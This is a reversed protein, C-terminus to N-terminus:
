YLYKRKNRNHEENTRAYIVEGTDLTTLYFYYPSDEPNITGMISKIGPNSIPGPTLGLNKRTNYDSEEQLDKYEITRDSKLYLLTADAGIVWDEDFRKWLIGAVIPIDDTTRVEKEVISAMIMIETLDRGHDKNLEDGLKTEFNNLMLQILNESYFNIPDIYYTDPFLYGELPYILPKMAEKNLFSHKDYDNFDKVATNFEGSSIVGIKVLENDIDEVTFGEPVTLVIETRTKDTIIDVIESVTQTKQLIFRGSVVSRDYGGIRTYMKFAGEDMILDEDYLNAAISNITEGKDIIFSINSSDTPDTPTEIFYQYQSFLYWGVAVLIVFVLLLFKVFTSSKRRKKYM